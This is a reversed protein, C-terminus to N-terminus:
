NLLVSESVSTSPPLGLPLLLLLVRCVFIFKKEEKTWVKEIKVKKMCICNLLWALGVHENKLLYEKLGVNM